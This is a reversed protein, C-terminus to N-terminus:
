GEGGTDLGASKVARLREGHLLRKRVVHDVVSDIDELDIGERRVERIFERNGQGCAQALSGTSYRWVKPFRAM